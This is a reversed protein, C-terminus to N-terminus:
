VRITSIKMLLIGIFAIININQMQEIFQWREIGTNNRASVMPILLKNHTQATQLRYNISDFNSQSIKLFLTRIFAINQMKINVKDVIM